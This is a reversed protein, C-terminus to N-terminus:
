NCAARCWGPTMVVRPRSMTVVKPRITWVYPRLAVAPTLRTWCSVSLPKRPM